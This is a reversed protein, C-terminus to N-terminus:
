RRYIRNRKCFKDGISCDGDGRGCLYASSVGFFLVAPDQGEIGRKTKQGSSAGGRQCQKEAKREATTTHTTHYLIYIYM